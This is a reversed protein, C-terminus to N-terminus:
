VHHFKITVFSNWDERQIVVQFLNGMNVLTFVLEVCLYVVVALDKLKIGSVSPKSLINDFPIEFVALDLSLRFFILAKICTGQFKVVSASIIGFFNM